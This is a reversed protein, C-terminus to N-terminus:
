SCNEPLLEVLTGPAEKLAACVRQIDELTIEYLVDLLRFFDAQDFYSRVYTIAIDDFSNLSRVSQGFYRNKLQDLLEQTIDASSIRALVAKVVALFAEKKTTEAYFMVMGYDKGLDVESGVYDNIIGEDLWQQFDPNLSSFVADLMIKICWEAKTRAYVDEIGQLKCAYSLKPLSVDMTFSFSERAPQKPETYALRKVSSIPAFTKKKQNEKILALLKKPDEKSVGVLIMSAPHYNLAYCDQLQQLTISNVSEDDGGIDYRLPHQQYLSSFTEMLVRSDSMEKYMHLEQIIIGKEKEVSEESIDLEQVFDLLLNLPEKVDSTTSFYYATETYSTFANVSAGMRSFLEMVDSDGMEFMKHELFHAIGAPFHLEKGQEDVQKMDMAGLPTAMMFLSKEYDPKQWLVVHLGNELTEEVYSEGYRKNTITKM